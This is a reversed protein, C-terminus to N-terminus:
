SMDASLFISYVYDAWYCFEASASGDLAATASATIGMSITNKIGATVYGSMLDGGLVSVGFKVKPTLTVATTNTSKNKPM